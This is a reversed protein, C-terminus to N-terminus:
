HISFLRGMSDKLWQGTSTLPDSAWGLSWEYRNSWTEPSYWVQQLKHWYLERTQPASAALGLAPADIGFEPPINQPLPHGHPYKWQINMQASDWYACAIKQDVPRKPGCPETAPFFEMPMDTRLRYAPRYSIAVLIVVAIFPYILKDTSHRFFM